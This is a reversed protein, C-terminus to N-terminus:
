DVLHKHSTPWGIHYDQYIIQRVEEINGDLVVCIARVLDDGVSCHCALVLFHPTLLARSEGANSPMVVDKVLRFFPISAAGMAALFYVFFSYNFFTFFFIEDDLILLFLSFICVNVQM